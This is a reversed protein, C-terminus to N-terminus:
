YQTQKFYIENMKESRLGKKEPVRKGKEDFRLDM